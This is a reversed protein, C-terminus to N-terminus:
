GWLGGRASLYASSEIAVLTLLVAAQALECAAGYIDGTAGGLSRRAWWALSAGVGVAVSLPVLGVPGLLAMGAVVSTGGSLVLPIGRAVQQYNKGLGESRAYPASAVAIVMALRGFMPLAVLGVRRSSGELAAIASWQVLLVVVLATVGFSGVRPDRMIELRRERTSGGFLGDFTDALGDLHLGRTLLALQGILVASRPGAPLLPTLVLDTLLLSLGLALGVLPYFGQASALASPEVPRWRRLRIITLFELALLPSGLDIM